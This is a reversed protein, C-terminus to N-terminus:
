SAAARSWFIRRVRALSEASSLLALLTLTGAFVFSTGDSLGLVSVLSQSLVLIFAGVAAGMLSGRGGALAAGGLIPAAIALLTFNNGANPDGIGVQAALIVGAVGALAACALYCLTRIRSTPIGLRTAFLGNLGVARLRLGTGSHRFFADAVVLLALIVVLAVPVPGITTLMLATGLEPSILGSATPRLIYALGSVMGLTAITAIVPSIKIREVFFANIGGVALGLALAVVAGILLVAVMGGTQAWTSMLVVALTMTAGVSVDIGGVMLVFFQAAAVTVLPLAVLLVNYISRDSFFTSNQSQAFLALGIMLGVLALLRVADASVFRRNWSLRRGGPVEPTITGAAEGIVEADAALEHEVAFAGVISEESAGMGPLETTLQGRSMVLIRDCLGALESADSSVVVVASGSDAIERLFRYIDLRSRADVGQTPEDILVVKPRMALVRSLAVKQQNGGSLETPLQGPHGIRIRYREIAAAVFSREKRIRMVGGSSLEDLVGIGLNDGVTLGAFLSENRRDSSLYVVGADVAAAYNRLRRGDVEVTGHHDGMAALSRLLPLQGNGDAGAIGVIQGGRLQLDIPGFGLGALESATLVVPGDQTGSRDPFELDVRTGAMLEVLRAPTVTSAEYTGQYKGDRLVTVEDAVRMVESLRHTVFLVASGRAAVQRMLELVIGVGHSDLASTAEDLILVQPECAVARIIEVLQRDGPPLASARLATDVDFGHRHLLETAWTSVRSLPPRHGEPTGLYLNQAVTLEGILSGDQFVTTAGHRQSLAPRAAQVTTGAIEVTGSDRVVTGSVIGVLTSKGSGNEGVLAHIKGAALTISVDQLAQVAGYRKSLGTAVLLPPGAPETPQRDRVATQAPNESM